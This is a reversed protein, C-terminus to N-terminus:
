LTRQAGNRRERLPPVPQTFSSESAKHKGMLQRFQSENSQIFVIPPSVRRINETVRSKLGEGQGRGHPSPSVPILAAAGRCNPLFIFDSFVFRCLRPLVTAGYTRCFNSESVKYKGWLQRFQLENSKSFVVIRGVFQECGAICPNPSM